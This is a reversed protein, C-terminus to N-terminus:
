IGKLITYTIERLARTDSLADHATIEIDLANAITKLKMNELAWGYKVAYFRYYALPDIIRHNLLSGMYDDSNRSFVESIFGYDFNGNFASPTAKDNRDYKDIYTGLNSTLEFHLEEYDIGEYYMRENNIGHIKVAQDSTRNLHPPRVISEWEWVTTGDIDLICAIQCIGHYNSLLGQTEVDFFLIKSTEPEQSNLLKDCYQM